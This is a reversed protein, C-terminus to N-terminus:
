SPGSEGYDMAGVALQGRLLNHQSQPWIVDQTSPLGPDPSGDSDGPLHPGPDPFWLRTKFEPQGETVQLM